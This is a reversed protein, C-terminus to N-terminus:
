TCSPDFAAPQNPDAIRVFVRDSMEAVIDDTDRTTGTALFRIDIRAIRGLNTASLTGGAPPVLEVSPELATGATAAAPYAYYHFVAGTTDADIATVSFFTSRTSSFSLPTTALGPATLDSFTRTAPVYEITHQVPLKSGDSLDVAFVLKNAGAYSVPYSSYNTCTQSRIVQVAREMALRGRQTADTRDAVEVNHRAAGITILTASGLILVGLSGTVLLEVLTFGREDSLRPRRNWLRRM